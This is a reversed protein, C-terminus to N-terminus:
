NLISSLKTFDIDFRDLGDYSNNFLFSFEFENKDSLSLMVEVISKTDIGIKSFYEKLGSNLSNYEIQKNLERLINKLRELDNVM